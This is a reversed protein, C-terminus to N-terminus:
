VVKIRQPSETAKAGSYFIVDFIVERIRRFKYSDPIWDLAQHPTRVYLLTAARWLEPCLDLYTPPM